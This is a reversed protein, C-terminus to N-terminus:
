AAVVETRAMREAMAAQAAAFSQSTVPFNRVVTMIALFDQATIHISAVPPSSSSLGAPAIPAPPSSHAAPVHPAPVLDSTPAASPMQVQPPDIQPDVEAPPYIPLPPAEPVFQWKEITFTAECVRRRERHPEALFGLHKLVHSLLQLM